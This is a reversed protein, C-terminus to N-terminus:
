PVLQEAQRGGYAPQVAPCCARPLLGCGAPGQEGAQSREWSEYAALADAAGALPVQLQRTWLSRVREVQEESPAAELLAQEYGRYIGWLRGGEAHPARCRLLKGM